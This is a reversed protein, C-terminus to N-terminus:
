IQEVVEIDNIADLAGRALARDLHKSFAKRASLDLWQFEIGVLNRDLGLQPMFQCYHVRGQLEFKENGIKLEVRVDPNLLLRADGRRSIFSCGGTSVCQLKSMRDFGQLIKGEIAQQQFQSAKFRVHRRRANKRNAFWM